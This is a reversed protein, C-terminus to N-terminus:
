RGGLIWSVGAMFVGNNTSPDTDIHMWRGDLRISFRDDLYFRVGGGLYFTFDSQSGIVDIDTNTSGIGATAFPVVDDDPTWNFVYGGTWTTVDVDLDLGTVNEETGTYSGTLELEQGGRFNYGIRGGFGAANDVGFDNDFNVYQGFPGLEWTDDRHAAQTSGSLTAFLVVTFLCCLTPRIRARM